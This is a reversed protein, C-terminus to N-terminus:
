SKAEDSSEEKPEESPGWVSEYWEKEFELVKAYVDEIVNVDYLEYGMDHDKWWKPVDVLTYRLYSIMHHLNKTGIDLNQEFGGNLMVKHKAIQAQIKANPIKCSFNGEWSQRTLLGEVNISFSHEMTPLTKKLNNLNNM